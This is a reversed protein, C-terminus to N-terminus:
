KFKEVKNRRRILVNNFGFKTALYYKMIKHYINLIYFNISYFLYMKQFIIKSLYLILIIYEFSKM